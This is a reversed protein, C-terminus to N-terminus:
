RTIPKRKKSGKRNMQALIRTIRRDDMTVLDMFKDLPILLLVGYEVSRIFTYLYPSIIGYQLLSVRSVVLMVIYFLYLSTKFSVFHMAFLARAFFKRARGHKKSFFDAGCDEMYYSALKDLVLMVVVLAINYAYAILPRGGALRVYILHYAILGYVVATFITEFAFAAKLRKKM